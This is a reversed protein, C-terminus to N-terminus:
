GSLDNETIAEEKAVPRLLRRGLVEDVRLPCLGGGPRKFVVDAAALRAGAPLDRAAVISKRSAARMSEEQPMVRKRGDGLAREVARLARALAAFERPELSAAHDPGPSKRDLTFHREIVCAGLAAAALAAEFGATHDSYGVPLGFLRELAGMALLNCAEVPAPYDCVCHLLVVRGAGGAPYRRLAAAIEDPTSMGTSVIAPLGTAAVADHLRPDVLDASATKIAPAGLRALFRAAEEDYPTSIFHVRSRWCLDFLQEFAANPLELSRILDHHSVEPATGAVMYRPKPTARTVLRAASFTQFKVADAGSDAAAAVLERALGVDGNHNVGAEAILYLPCGSGVERGQIRVNPLRM